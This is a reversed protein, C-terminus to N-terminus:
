DDPNNDFYLGNGIWGYRVYVPKYKQTQNNKRIASFGDGFVATNNQTYSSIDVVM